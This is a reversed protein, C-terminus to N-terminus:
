LKSLNNQLTQFFYSLEVQMEKLKLKINTFSSQLKENSTWSLRTLAWFHKKEWRSHLILLSLTDFNSWEKKFGIFNLLFTKRGLFWTILLQFYVVLIILLQKTEEEFFVPFKKATNSLCNIIQKLSKICTPFLAENKM